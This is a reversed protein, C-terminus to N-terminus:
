AEGEDRVNTLDGVSPAMIRSATSGICTIHGYRKDFKRLVWSIPTVHGPSWLDLLLEKWELGYKM